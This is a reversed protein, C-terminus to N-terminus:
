EVTGHPGACSPCTGFVTLAHASAQFGRPLMRGELRDLPCTPLCFVRVCQMCTFHFHHPQSAPEYRTGGDPLLVTRVRGAGLLLKVTRYVTAVGLGPLESRAGELIEEVTLPGDAAEIVELIADRQRTRRQGLPKRKM